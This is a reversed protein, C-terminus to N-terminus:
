SHACTQPLITLPITLLSSLIRKPHLQFEGTIGFGLFLSYIIAYVMRVSGAVINKSQLELSGCLVTYGPLILAISSQALASFCFTNGHNISGFARALFSTLVAASIEFINAYLESRPALILQMFGLLCGLVFAIPLDIPRAGFAFPGVFMSALGYIFVLKWKNFRNKRSNVKDLRSIAEEVGIMDHIVEKYIAHTDYLKALNVAQACRVIRVDTTHWAADGFSIIMCGPMYLFQSDIELVRSCMRMYEELRHTPAGYSMLARCIKLLFAKRQMTDALHVQIRIAEEIKPGKNRGLVTDMAQASLPRHKAKPRIANGPNSGGPQALSTSSSVLDSISGTSHPKPNKYWKQPKVKRTTGGPSPSGSSDPSGLIHSKSSVPTAAPTTGASDLLPNSVNRRQYAARNIADNGLPINALASGVGQENYLKMLSGLVGERYQKPRPVYDDPDREAIPTTQGSKLSPSVPDESQFAFWRRPDRQTHHKMLRRAAALFDKRTRKKSPKDSKEEEGESEDQIGYTRKTELKELPIDSLDWAPQQGDIPPSPPPSLTHHKTRKEAGRVPSAFRSGPASRTGITRSLREARQQASQQSFAKGAATRIAESESEAEESGQSNKEDEGQEEQSLDEENDLEVSPKRLIPTKQRTLPTLSSSKSADIGIAQSVPGMSNERQISVKGKHKPPSQSEQSGEESGGDSPLEFTARKNQSDLTEGGRNWQVRHKEKQAKHGDRSPPGSSEASHDQSKGDIEPPSLNESRSPTAM